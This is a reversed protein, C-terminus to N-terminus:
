PSSIVIGSLSYGDNTEVMIDKEMIQALYIPTAAADTIVQDNSSSEASSSEEQSSESSQASITSEAKRQQEADDPLRPNLGEPNDDSERGM